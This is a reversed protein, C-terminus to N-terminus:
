ILFYEKYWLHLVYLVFLKRANDKEGSIHEQSLKEMVNKNFYKNLFDSALIEDKWSTNERMWKALPMPFGVRKRDPITPYLKKVLNRLLFKTKGDRYKLSDPLTKAFESVVRDLFPVRVELSNAMSMKDGKQLIDGVMWTNIDVYQMKQSDTLHDLRGYLCDLSFFDPMVDGKWIERVESEKFINANGIYRESIDVSARKLYGKGFFDFPIKTLSLIPRRIISPLNRLKNVALPELYLGYGGFFEDAGEGSLVVKVKKSAAESLFYLAYASPDAVPEDFHWVIKPLKEFYNDKNLHIETHKTGLVESAQRAASFENKEEGGITFTHIEAEPNLKRIMATTISSDVGGSLFAGVPVDAILHYKVSEEILKNTKEQIDLNPKVKKSGSEFMFDFYRTETFDGTDLDIKMYKGPELKFINKFFTEKLPNYQYSLYNRIASENIQKEYEPHLILSKVESGLAMVSDDKKFYYLPKIGFFDRAVFAKNQDKDFISFAFMGRLENLFVEPNERHKIYSFLITETDSDTEYNFEKELEERLDLHNYIEGNFVISYEKGDVIRTMPQNGSELDIIALRTMGYAFNNNEAKFGTHDPGRHKIESLMKKLIDESNETNNKILTVIGCMNKVIIDFLFV